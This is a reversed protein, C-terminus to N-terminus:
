ACVRVSGLDEVDAATWGKETSRARAFAASIMAARTAKETVRMEAGRALDGLTIHYGKLGPELDGGGGDGGLLGEVPETTRQEIEERTSSRSNIHAGSKSAQAKSQFHNVAWLYGMQTGLLRREKFKPKDGLRHLTEGSGGPDWQKHLDKIPVSCWMIVNLFNDSIHEEASYLDLIHTGSQLSRSLELDITNGSYKESLSGILVRLLFELVQVEFKPPNINRALLWFLVSVQLELAGQWCRIEQSRKSVLMEITTLHVDLLESFSNFITETTASGSKKPNCGEPITVDIFIMTSKGQIDDLESSISPVHRMSKIMVSWFIKHVAVVLNWDIHVGDITFVLSFKSPYTLPMPQTPPPWPPMLHEVTGCFNFGPWPSPRLDRGRIVGDSWPPPWSNVDLPNTALMDHGLFQVSYKIPIPTNWKINAMMSSSLFDMFQVSTPVDKFADTWTQFVVM